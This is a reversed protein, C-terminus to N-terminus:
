ILIFEEINVGHERHYEADPRRYYRTQEGNDDNIIYWVRDDDKDVELEEWDVRPDLESLEKTHTDQFGWRFQNSDGERVLKMDAPMPGLLTEGQSLGHIYCSGLVRRGGGSGPTLAIPTGCGLLICVSDGPQVSSPALGIHGTILQLGHGALLASGRVQRLVRDRFEQTFKFGSQSLNEM